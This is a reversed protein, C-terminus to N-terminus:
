DSGLACGSRDAHRHTRARAGPDTAAVQSRLSRRQSVRGRVTRATPLRPLAPAPAPRRLAAGALPGRVAQERVPRLGAPGSFAAFSAM